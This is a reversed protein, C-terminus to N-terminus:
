SLFKMQHYTIDLQPQTEEAIQSIENRNGEYISVEGTSPKWM